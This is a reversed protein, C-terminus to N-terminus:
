PKAKQVRRLSEASLMGAEHLKTALSKQRAGIKDNKSENLRLPLLELNAVVCDLEPVLARPIIHDVSLEQGKYPGKKVTPSKGRRMEALGAEDLCGLKNAIDHNRVLASATLKAAAKNTYGAIAVAKAAVKEVKQGDLRAAELQAVAKQVRPNAGRTGLTALKAPSILDAIRDAYDAQGAFVSASCVGALVLLLFGRRCFQTTTQM